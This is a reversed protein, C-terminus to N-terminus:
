DPRECAFRARDCRGRKNAVGGPIINKEVLVDVVKKAIISKEQDNHCKRGPMTYCRVDAHPASERRDLPPKGYLGGGSQPVDNWGISLLEGGASTVAAGVQRSLCASNRSASAAAYMATEEHSPTLVATRFVLGFFRKLKEVIQGTAAIETSGTCAEDVRLFFDCRPFTDRVSQGHSFEEGSDTDILKAIEEPSLQGLQELNIKRKELPSFVGIAFFADGYILRLLDLEAKNKISDIVHCIRQSATPSPPAKELEVASDDFVGYKVERDARIKAMAVKALIDNGFLRRVEDGAAIQSQILKFKSSVDIPKKVDAANLEIIRSLRLPVTSYHYHRLANEIEAAVEHIPSGIPGCLAIVLEPTLSATAEGTSDVSRASEKKSPAASQAGIKPISSM